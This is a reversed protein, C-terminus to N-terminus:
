PILPACRRCSARRTCTEIRELKAQPAIRIAVLVAIAGVAALAQAIAVVLARFRETPVLAVALRARHAVAGLQDAPAHRAADPFGMADEPVASSM